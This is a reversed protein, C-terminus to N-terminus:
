FLEIRVIADGDDISKACTWAADDIGRALVKYTRGKATTVYFTKM